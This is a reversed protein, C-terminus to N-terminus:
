ITYRVKIQNFHYEEIKTIDLIVEKPTNKEIMEIIMDILERKM